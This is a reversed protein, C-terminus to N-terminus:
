RRLYSRDPTRKHAEPTRTRWNVETMTLREGWASCLNSAVSHATCVSVTGLTWRAQLNCCVIVFPPLMHFAHSDPTPRQSERALCRKACRPFHFSVVPPASGAHGVSQAVLRHLSEAPPVTRDHRVCQAVLLHLSVVPPVPRAHQVCARVCLDFNGGSHKGQQQRLHPRKQQLPTSATHIQRVFPMFVLRKSRM